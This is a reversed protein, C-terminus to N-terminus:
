EGRPVCGSSSCTEKLRLTPNGPVVDPQVPPKVEDEPGEVILGKKCWYNETGPSNYVDFCMEYRIGSATTCGNYGEYEGETILEWGGRCGTKTGLDQIYMTTGTSLLILLTLIGSIQKKNLEVMKVETVRM